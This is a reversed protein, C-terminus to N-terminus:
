RHVPYAYFTKCEDTSFDEPTLSGIRLCRRVQGPGWTGFNRTNTGWIRLSPRSSLGRSRKSILVLLRRFSQDEACTISGGAYPMSTEFFANSVQMAIPTLSLPWGGDFDNRASNLFILSWSLRSLCPVALFCPPPIPLHAEAKKTVEDIPVVLNHLQPCANLRIWCQGVPVSSSPCHEALSGKCCLSHGKQVDEPDATM